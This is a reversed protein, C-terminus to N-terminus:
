IYPQRFRVAGQLEGCLVGFAEVVQLLIVAANDRNGRLAQRMATPLRTAAGAVRSLPYADVVFRKGSSSQHKAFLLVQYVAYRRFRHFHEALTARDDHGVVAAPALGISYGALGLRYCVDVDSGSVFDEDFGGVERLADTRFGANATAVYPLDLAPLYSLRRQGDVITISNRQVWTTDAHKTIRGGVAALGTSELAEVLRDIWETGPVCDADTTLLYRGAAMRLAANRAKPISAEPLHVYVVQGAEGDLDALDCSGNEVVIIEYSVSTCQELLHRVVRRARTDGSVAIVVSATVFGEDTV